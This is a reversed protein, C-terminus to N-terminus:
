MRLSEPHLIYTNTYICTCRCVNLAHVIDGPLARRKIAFQCHVHRQITRVVMLLMCVHEIRSVLTVVIALLAIHQTYM